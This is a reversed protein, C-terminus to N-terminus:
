SAVPAVHKVGGETDLIWRARVMAADDPGLQPKLDDFKRRAGAYDEVDLLHFLEDLERATAEPRAPVGFVDELLENSARGEVFLNVDVLQNNDFLRVQGREVTSVVQPSHTTAIFQMRPFARRLSPIVSRQWKPHLHLEIEDILVIGATERAADVGFQPNLTAARQAIDAAMAIMNRYGDSLMSFSEVAGSREIRIEKQKLDLWFRTVGHICDCVARTVAAMRPEAFTPDRERAELEILRKDYMWLTLLQESTAMELCDTYGDFRTNLGLREETIKRQRWLRGTGYCTLLPLPVEKGNQVLGQLFSGFSRVAAESGWATRQDRGARSREWQLPSDFIDLQRPYRSVDAVARVKVPWQTQLDPVGGVEHVVRRAHAIDISQDPSQDVAAFYSGLAVKIAELVGSKGAGNGVVLLTVHEDFTVDLQEFGRFNEVHLSKM